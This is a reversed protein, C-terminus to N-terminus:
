SIILKLAGAILGGLVGATALGILAREVFLIRSESAATRAVHHILSETNVALIVKIETVDARIAKLDEKIEEHM